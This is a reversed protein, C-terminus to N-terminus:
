QMRLPYLRRTETSTSLYDAKSKNPFGEHKCILLDSLELVKKGFELSDSATLHSALENFHAGVINRIQFLIRLDSILQQLETEYYSGDPQLHQVKLQKSYKDKLACLYDYATNKRRPISLEYHSVLWDCVQELLYGAQQAIPEPENPRTNINDRLIEVMSRASDQLIVGLSPNWEKLEILQCDSFKLQGNRIKAHWRQYHTTVLTHMFNESEAYILNVIRDAHPEDISGLVDDMILITNDPADRKALSLLICLGLSDLHSNSFYAGPPANKCKFESQIDLSARRKPDLQLAIKDLGEGPHVVEYLRGVEGAISSLIADIFNKRKSEHIALLRDIIPKLIKNSKQERMNDTYQSYAADIIARKGKNELLSNKYIELDSRVAEIDDYALTDKKSLITKLDSLIDIEESFERMFIEIAKIKDSIASTATAISERNRDKRQTAHDLEEKATNLESFSEIITAIRSPLGAINEKSECLPCSSVEMKKSEFYKRAESLIGLSDAAGDIVKSKIETYSKEKSNFDNEVEDAERGMRRLTELASTLLEIKRLLESFSSIEADFESIDKDSEIKAWTVPDSNTVGSLRYQMELTSYNEAIRESAIRLQSEINRQLDRVTKESRDIEGVDIFESIVNFREAPKALILDMMQKRRWIKVFPISYLSSTTVVPKTGSISARWSAGNEHTLTVSVDSAKKGVFPWYKHKSAGISNDNLSGCDGNALFDLADCISTKGTGNQGYILTLPKEFQIELPTSVGRLGAITLKDLKSIKSM